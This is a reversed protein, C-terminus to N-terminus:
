KKMINLYYIISLFFKNGIIYYIKTNTILIYITFLYEYYMNYFLLCM